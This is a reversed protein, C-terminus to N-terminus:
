ELEGLLSALASDLACLQADSLGALIHAENAVHGTVASEICKLGQESLRVQKSRADEPNDVREVLGRKELRQLRHTMTGSTIMMAGFLQTPTLCYPTGARRLTALVDFEWTTLEHLAFERELQQGVLAACRKLRGITLMPGLELDPRQTQWQQIIKEVADM